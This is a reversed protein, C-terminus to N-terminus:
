VRGQLWGNDSDVGSLASTPADFLLDLLVTRGSRSGRFRREHSCTTARGTFWAWARDGRRRVGHYTISVDIPESTTGEELTGALQWRSFGDPDAHIAVTSADLRIWRDASAANIALTSEQPPDTITLTGESISLPLRERGSSIGLYSVRHLDWHGAAPLEADDLRQVLSSYDLILTM